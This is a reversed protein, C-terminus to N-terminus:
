IRQVILLMSSWHVLLVCVVLSCPVLSCSLPCSQVFRSPLLIASPLLVRDTLTWLGIPSLGPAQAPSNCPYQLTSPSHSTGGNSSRPKNVPAPPITGIAQDQDPPTVSVKSFPPCVPRKLHLISLQSVQDLDIGACAAVEFWAQTKLFDVSHDHHWTLTASWVVFFYM